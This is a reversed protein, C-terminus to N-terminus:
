PGVRSLAVMAEAREIAVPSRATERLTEARRLFHRDTRALYREFRLAWWPAWEELLVVVKRKRFRAVVGTRYSSVLGATRLVFAGDVNEPKHWGSLTTLGKSYLEAQLVRARCLSSRRHSRCRRAFQQEDETKRRIVLKANCYHCQWGRM